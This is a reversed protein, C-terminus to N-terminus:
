ARPLSGAKLESLLAKLGPEDVKAAAKEVSFWRRKRASREKWRRKLKTVLMPYLTVRCPVTSGDDMLKEYRYTGLPRDDMRGVAGAEELAEIAAAAWPKRGDMPWGKPPVWRGTDRSTVLLIRVRDKGVVKVPLAAIQKRAKKRVKGPM